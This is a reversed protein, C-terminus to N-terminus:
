TGAYTYASYNYHNKKKYINSEHSNVRIIHWITSRSVFTIVIARLYKTINFVTPVYCIGARNVSFGVYQVGVKCLELIQELHLNHKALCPTPTIKSKIIIRTTRLARELM